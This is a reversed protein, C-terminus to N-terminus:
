KLKKGRLKTKIEDRRLEEQERQYKDEMEKPIDTMPGLIKDMGIKEYEKACTECVPYSKKELIWSQRMKVAERNQHVACKM